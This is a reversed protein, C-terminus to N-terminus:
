LKPGFQYPRICQALCDFMVLNSFQHSALFVQKTYGAIYMYMYLCAGSYVGLVNSM